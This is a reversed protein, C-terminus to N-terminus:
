MGGYDYLRFHCGMIEKYEESKSGYLVRVYSQVRRGLWIAGTVERYLLKNRLSRMEVVKAAKENVIKTKGETDSAFTKLAAITLDPENVTYTSVQETLAILERFHDTVMDYSRQSVSHKVIKALESGADPDALALTEAPPIEAAEDKIMKARKGRLKRMVSRLDAILKSDAGSAIAENLVRTSKVMLEEFVYQRQNIAEKLEAISGKFDSLATHLEIKRLSLSPLKIDNAPPNFNSGFGEVVEVLRDFYAVNKSHGSEFTKM